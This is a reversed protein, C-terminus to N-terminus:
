SDERVAFLGGEREIRHEAMTAYEESLEIGVFRRGLQVAVVGTTGSGAFPDLVLDGPRSGAKVCPEVIRRPYTAFHAEPFPETAITWVSRLNRGHGHGHGGAEEWRANFGPLADRTMAPSSAATAAQKGGKYRGVKDLETPGDNWGSPRKYGSLAAKAAEPNGVSRKRGINTLASARALPDQSEKVLGGIRERQEVMKRLDSPGSQLPERVADGDYFYRQSRSLLFVQEHARTPRDRVSEPMPNPKAWIIEARLNWGTAQLAFAVRWPMGVLNKPKLGPAYRSGKGWRGHGRPGRKARNLTMTDIGGGQAPRATMSDGLNLWLTGDKRLVRRVQDFVEVLHDLYLDPDPELGLSGGWGDSWHQPSLGYDRLGWYPPSTVVTQVSEAEMARLVDLVHGRRIEWEPV